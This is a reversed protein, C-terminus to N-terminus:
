SCRNTTFISATLIEVTKSFVYAVSPISFFAILLYHVTFSMLLGSFSPLLKRLSRVQSAKRFFLDFVNSATTAYMAQERYVDFLHLLINNLISKTLDIGM